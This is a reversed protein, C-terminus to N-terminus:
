VQTGSIKPRPETDQPMKVIHHTGFIYKKSNQKNLLHFTKPLKTCNTASPTWFLVVANLANTTKAINQPIAM